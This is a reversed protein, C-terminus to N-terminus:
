REARPAKGHPAAAVAGDPPTKGTRQGSLARRMPDDHARSRDPAAQAPEDTDPDPVSPDEVEVESLTTVAPIPLLTPHPDAAATWVPEPFEEVGASPSSTPEATRQVAPVAPAVPEATRQDVPVAPPVPQATARAAALAAPPAPQRAPRAVAARPTRVATVVRVASTAPTRLPAAAASGDEAAPTTLVPLVVPTRDPRLEGTRPLAAPAGVALSGALVVAAMGLSALAALAGSRLVMSGSPPRQM